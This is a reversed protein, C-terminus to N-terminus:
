TFSKGCQTCNYPKEGTHILQHRKLHGQRIFSKGCQTCHHRRERTHIRQHLKLLSSFGEDCLPFSFIGSEETSSASFAATQQTCSFTPTGCSAVSSSTCPEEMESPVCVCVRVGTSM